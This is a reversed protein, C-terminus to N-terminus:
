TDIDQQTKTRVAAEESVVAFAGTYVPFGDRESFKPRSEVREARLVSRNDRRREASSNRDVPM